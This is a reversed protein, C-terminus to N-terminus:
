RVIIFTAGSQIVTTPNIVVSGSPALELKVNNPVIANQLTINRCAVRRTTQPPPPQTGTVTISPCNFSIGNLTNPATTNSQHLWNSLQTTNTGGGIWSVNFKGYYDPGNPNSCSASGGHLQGIIHRNNNILASGSSGGETTGANWVVRWHTNPLCVQGSITIQTSQNVIESTLCIKKIDGRPHHIGVGSSGSNGTRDWGLYYPTFSPTYNILYVPDEILELLAFDSGANGVGYPSNALIKAGSTSFAMPEATNVCTPSEYHWYFTWHNLTANADFGGLCHAATLFFPHYDNNTNNILSGTCNRNGNVVILAVARKENQWNSGQSCNININCSGSRNYGMFQNNGPVNGYGYKFHEPMIYRYGHVVGSISIIGEEKYGKPLFYELVIADGYVLGTAFGEVADRTGKNNFKTFAGIHHRKNKNYIFLKAGDPLWFKDYLLNISLAGPCAIILQCLKDGNELTHWVGVETLNINVSHKYGFRPPIGLEEEIKDEEQLKITDIAPMVIIPIIEKGFDYKFGVPVERTSLQANLQLCLGFLGFFVLLAFRNITM